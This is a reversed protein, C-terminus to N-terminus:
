MGKKVSMVFRYIAVHEACLSAPLPQGDVQIEAAPPGFGFLVARGLALQDSFDLEHQYRDLLGTYKRGGAAKYFLMIRLIKARDLSDRDYPTSQDKDSILRRETLLTEATLEDLREVAIPAAASFSDIVYAWRDYFLVGHTLKFGGAAQPAVRISGTLRRDVNERLDAAVLRAGPAIWRGTFCKSSWTALPVPANLRSTASLDYPETFLPLEAQPANMGGLGNGPLGLWSLQTEVPEGHPGQWLPRLALSHTQSSPSYLASGVTAAPWARISTSTSCM